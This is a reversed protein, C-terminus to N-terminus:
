VRFLIFYRFLLYLVCWPIGLFIPINEYIKAAPSIFGVAAHETQRLMSPRRRRYNSLLKFDPIWELYQSMDVCQWEVARYVGRSVRVCCSSWHKYSTALCCDTHWHVPSIAIMHSTKLTTRMMGLALCCFQLCM